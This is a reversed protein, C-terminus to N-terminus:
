PTKEGAFGEWSPPHAGPRPPPRDWRAPTESLEEVPALHRLSGWASPREATWRGIEAADPPVAEGPRAAPGLGRVWLATQCLSVRVSWSGGERARRLLAAVTGLAALSGTVYDCLAAPVLRPPGGRAEGEAVALGTATQALQEWGRRAAWPGAHGYADISVHVLGPRRAALEQPGFGRRALSGARYGQCFVDAGEALARLQAAEEPVALDLFASRKGHGTDVVFPEVVPLHEAGVRLVHAGHAALHRGCAPGALVRTLDLVRLGALPRPDEPLPVPRADGMGEIPEVELVPLAALARGQPHADWEEASRAVAGCLGAAALADELEFADCGAVAAAVEGADDACGLLALTGDRLHPFGGHLHIWRGGRARHLAVTPNTLAPRPLQRGDARQLLFSLLSTAARRAEVRVAQRRGTRERWMGAVAAAFAGIATAAADQARCRAPVAPPGDAVEVAGAMADADCPGFGAARLLGTIAEDAV